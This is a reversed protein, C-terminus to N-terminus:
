DSILRSESFARFTQTIGLLLEALIRFSFHSCATVLIIERSNLAVVSQFFHKARILLRTFRVELLEQDAGLADFNTATLLFQM